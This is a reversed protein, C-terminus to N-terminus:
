TPEGEQWPHRVTSPPVQEPLEAGRDRHKAVPVGSVSGHRAESLCGAHGAELEQGDCHDPGVWVQVPAEEVGVSNDGSARSVDVARPPQRDLGKARRRSAFGM